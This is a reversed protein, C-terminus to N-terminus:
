PEVGRLQLAQRCAHCPAYGISRRRRPSYWRRPAYGCLARLVKPWSTNWNDVEVAHETRGNVTRAYGITLDDM